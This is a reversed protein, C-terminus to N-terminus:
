GIKSRPCFCINIAGTVRDVYLVIGAVDHMFDKNSMALLSELALPKNNHAKVLSLEIDCRSLAPLLPVARDVCFDILVLDNDTLSDYPIM